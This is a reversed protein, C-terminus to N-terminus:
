AESSGPVGEGKRDLLKHLGRYEAQEERALEELAAKSKKRENRHSALVPLPDITQWAPLTGFLSALLVTSRLAWAVFGVSLTVGTAAAIRTVQVQEAVDTAVAEELEEIVADLKAFLLESLVAPSLPTEREEIHNDEVSFTLFATPAQDVPRGELSERQTIGANSQLEEPRFAGTRSPQQAPRVGSEGSSVRADPAAPKVVPAIADPTPPAAAPTPAPAIPPTIPVLSPPLAAPPSSEYVDTVTVHLTQTATAGQSDTVRVEVVYVNDGDADTPVEFDPPVSLELAGTVADITFRAQDIGGSVSYTLTQAPLDVDIGGVITVATVHEAVNIAATAGGGNSMITPADNVPTITLTVSTAGLSGGAGDSVTFTFNDGTSESGDHVYVLRNAAIDAQTFTTASIGPATTLELRGYTPGTGISYTLQAASNDVDTVALESATITDTGGEAATSGTNVSLTPADNVPTVTVTVTATETVGGSTITYTFSDPGTFNATPTYTV